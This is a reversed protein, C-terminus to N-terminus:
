KRMRWYQEGQTWLLEAFHRDEVRNAAIAQASIRDLREFGQRRRIALPQWGLHRGADDWKKLTDKIGELSLPSYKDLRMDQAIHAQIISSKDYDFKLDHNHRSLRMKEEHILNLHESSLDEREVRLKAQNVHEDATEGKAWAANLRFAKDYEGIQPKSRPNREVWDLFEICGLERAYAGVFTSHFIAIEVLFTRTLDITDECDKHFEYLFSLCGGLLGLAVTYHESISRLNHFLIRKAQEQKHRAAYFAKFAPSEIATNNEACWRLFEEYGHSNRRTDVEAYLQEVHARSLQPIKALHAPYRLKHFEVKKTKM